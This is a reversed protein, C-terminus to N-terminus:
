LDEDLFAKKPEPVLYDDPMRDRQFPRIIKGDETMLSVGSPVPFDRVPTDPHAAKMFGLWIPLATSGGTAKDTKRTIIPQPTTRGVWTGVVLDTTFGMFWVDRFDNTTGTKGAAPRGLERVRVGTGFEVVGKMLSVLAYADDAPVVQRRTAPEYRYLTGGRGDKVQTIFVGPLEAGPHRPIEQGMAAIAAYAMTHEYPSIEVAGVAIPMVRDIPSVIGLKRMTRITEDPGGSKALLQVSVSNLSLALARRLDVTGLFKNDYNTPCWTGSATEYCVQHDNVEDAVTAGHNLATLYVYPKVSSGTQRRAQIAINFQNEAWDYGGVFAKIFGTNPDVAVLSAQLAEPHEHGGVRKAPLAYRVSKANAGTGTERTELRMPLLDGTKLKKGTEQEWVSVRNLDAPNLPFWAGAVCARIGQADVALRALEIMQDSVWRPNKCDEPGVFADDHGDPGTFGLRRELDLLGLRVSAQAVFQMKLDLTTQVVLGRDFIAENGYMRKLERRVLDCFYPAATLNIQDTREIIAIDQQRATAAQARDIFGLATMRDLVYGQRSRARAYHHYPSDHSPAKPLGALIAAEAVTLQGVDKGFYGRSAAQIGYTGHGLFVHNLYVELLKDKAKDRGFKAAMLRELEVAIIGERAKREYSKETTQLIVQKVVQQTLTSAGQRSAGATRNAHYARVMAIADVGHHELFNKDEGAIFAQRVHLPVRDLTVPVREYDAFSCIQQGDAAYVRTAIVPNYAIVADLDDLFGRIFYSKVRPISAASILSVLAVLLAATRVLSMLILRLDRWATRCEQWAKVTLPPRQAITDRYSKVRGRTIFHAATVALCRVIEVTAFVPLVATVLPIEVLRLFLRPIATVEWWITKGAPRDPNTIRPPGALLATVAFGGAALLSVWWTALLDDYARWVLLGLWGVAALWASLCLYKWARSQCFKKIALKM